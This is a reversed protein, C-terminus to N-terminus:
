SNQPNSASWRKIFSIFLKCPNSLYIGKKTILNVNWGFTKDAFPIAITNRTKLYNAVHDVTVAHGKGEECLKHALSIETTEFVVLPSFGEDFCKSHFIMNTKFDKSEIIIPENRLDCFEISEKTALWYDKRVLLRHEYSKLKMVNFLNPDNPGICLGVDFECNNICKEVYTDAFESCELTVNPYQKNFDTIFDTSFTSIVGYSSAIKIVSQENKLQNIDQFLSQHNKLLFRAKEELLRGFSTLIIGNPTREMLKVQLKNELNKIVKSMGQPTLHLIAAAKTISRCRCVELYYELDKDSM